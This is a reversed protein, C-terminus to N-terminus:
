RLEGDLAQIVAAFSRSTQNLYVYCSRLSDSMSEQCSLCLFATQRYFGAARIASCPRAAEQLGREGRRRWGQLLSRSAATGCGRPAVSLSRKLVSLSVPCKCCARAM